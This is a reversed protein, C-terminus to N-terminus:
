TDLKSMMDHFDEESLIQIAQGSGIRSEANRHKTSKDYGNLFSRNQIGVVLITTNSNVSSSVACGASAAFEEAQRRVMMRLTGTFCICEGYLPGDIDAEVKKTIKRETQGNKKNFSRTRSIPRRTRELWDDIDYKTENSAILVVQAAARADELADHHEFSIDLDYAVDALGYGRRAYKDPWARRVIKASDLWTVQLQELDYKQMSREFAIRDFPMHSVLISGRLRKRLEDRIEPMTPSGEVDEETIGHIGVNYEDFWDEPDVLTQWEDVINGQVVHVIGVQCISSYDVNATEVDIANFTLNM